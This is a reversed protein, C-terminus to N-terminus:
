PKTQRGLILGIAFARSVLSALLVCDEETWEPRLGEINGKAYDITWDLLDGSAVGLNELYSELGPGRVTAATTLIRQESFTQDLKERTITSITWRREM